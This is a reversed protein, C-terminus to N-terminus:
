TYTYKTRTQASHETTRETRVLENTFLSKNSQPSVSKLLTCPWILVVSDRGLVACCRRVPPGVRGVLVCLFIFLSSWDGRDRKHQRWRASSSSSATMRAGLRRFIFTFIFIRVHPACALSYIFERQEIFLCVCACVCVRVSRRAFLYVCAWRVFLRAGRFGPVVRPSAVGRAVTRSVLSGIHCRSTKIKASNRCTHVISKIKAWWRRLQARIQEFLMTMASSSSGNGHMTFLFSSQLHTILIPKSAGHWDCM